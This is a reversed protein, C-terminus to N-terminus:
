VARDKHNWEVLWVEGSFFTLMDRNSKLFAFTGAVAMKRM